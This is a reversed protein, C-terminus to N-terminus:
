FSHWVKGQSRPRGSGLSWWRGARLLESGLNLFVVVFSSGRGAKVVQMGELTRRLLQEKGLPSGKM